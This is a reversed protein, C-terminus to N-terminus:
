SRVGRTLLALLAWAPTSARVTNCPLHLVIAPPTLEVAPRQRGLPPSTRYLINGGRRRPGRARRRRGSGGSEIHKTTAAAPSIADDMALPGDLLGGTIQGRDAMKCLAAADITSPIAPDVTEIASLIAVKPREIGLRQALHIANQCIDVKDILTPSINVVADTVLLPKPYAPIDFAFVHSLRRSGRLGIDHALVAHLLAATHLSGKMLM